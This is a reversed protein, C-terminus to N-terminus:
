RIGALFDVKPEMWCRCSVREAAPASPDGPYALMAGSPSVFMAQLGVSQGAMGRHTHRVRHDAATRWIKTVADARLKGQEVAQTLAEVAAQNLAAMMETRAIMEGRLELLRDAYRSVIRTITEATMRRGGIAAQVTRDSRRDRRQRELYASLQAPDGSLLEARAAAVFSAQASTLGVIGGVRRKTVPDLRGVIDLAVSRPNRGEQMGALLAARIANRQDEVIGTVLTSSHTRLWDEARLNRADFRVVLRGGLPDRLVPLAGTTSMGGAAFVQGIVADLRWFAAKDLNLAGIAGEVDGRELMEVLRSLQAASRLDDIGALFARRVEPEWEDTLQEIRSRNSLRAM